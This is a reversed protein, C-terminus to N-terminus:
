LTKVQVFVCQKKRLQHQFCSLLSVDDGEWVYKVAKVNRFFLLSLIIKREQLDTACLLISWKDNMWLHKAEPGWLAQFGSIHKDARDKLVKHLVCSKERLHTQVINLPACLFNLNVIKINAINISYFFFFLVWFYTTKKETGSYVLQECLFIIDWSVKSALVTAPDAM